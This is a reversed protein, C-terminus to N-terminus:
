GGANLVTIQRTTVDRGSSDFTFEDFRATVLDGNAGIQLLGGPGNYDIGRGEALLSKCQAFTDCVSGGSSVTPIQSAIVEATTSGGQQAALMFLNACDYAQTAFM